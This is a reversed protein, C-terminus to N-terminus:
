MRCVFLGTLRELLGRYPNWIASIACMMPIALCALLAVQCKYVRAWGLPSRM